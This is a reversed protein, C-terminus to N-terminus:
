REAMGLKAAQEALLVAVTRQEITPRVVEAASTLVYHGLVTEGARVPIVTEEDVPLGDRAVDVNRGNRVLSGDRQLIANRADHTAGPTFRCRGAGLVEAIQDAVLARVRDPPEHHLAVVDAVKVVGSLYGARESARHQQRRGWLAIEGVAASILLLLLTVEVDDSSNIDFTQYPATLFFDFWAASSLAALLGALRDGTAAAAVVLVVLILATTAQTLDDRVTALAACVVFPVVLVVGILWGRGLPPMKWKM